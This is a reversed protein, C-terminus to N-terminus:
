KQSVSGRGVHGQNLFTDTQGLFREIGDVNAGVSGTLQIRGHVILDKGAASPSVFRWVDRYDAFARVGSVTVYGGEALDKASASTSVKIAGVVGAKVTGYTVEAYASLDAEAHGKANVTDIASVSLAVPQTPDFTQAADVARLTKSQMGPGPQDSIGAQASVSATRQITAQFQAVASPTLSLCGLFALATSCTKKMEM